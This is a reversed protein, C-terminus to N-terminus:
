PNEGKIKGQAPTKRIPEKCTPSSSKTAEKYPFGQFRERLIQWGTKPDAPAYRTYQAIPGYQSSIRDTDAFQMDDLVNQLCKHADDADLTAWDVRAKALEKICEVAWEIPFLYAPAPGTAATLLRQLYAQPDRPAAFAYRKTKNEDTGVVLVELREALPLDSAAMLHATLWAKATHKPKPESTALKLFIDYCGDKNKHVAEGTGRIRFDGLSLPSRAPTAPREHERAGGWPIREVQNLDFGVKKLNASWAQFIEFHRAKCTQGFIGAPLKGHAKRICYEQEWLACAVASDCGARLFLDTLFWEERAELTEYEVLLIDEEEDDQLGLAISAWGQLPCDLMNKLNSLSISRNAIHGTLKPHQTPSQPVCLLEGLKKRAPESLQPWLEEWGRMGWVQPKSENSEMYGSLEDHLARAAKESQAIPLWRAVCDDAHRALPLKKELRLVMENITQTRTETPANAAIAALIGERLTTLLEHIVSSPSLKEGTEPRRGVYCLVLRDRACLLTELMTYKDHERPTVDGPQRFAPRLDLPDGAGTAPFKGEGLGLVFIVRFPIARMPLFSSVVVGHSRTHAPAYINQLAQRVYGLAIEFSLTAQPGLDQIDNEAVNRIVRLCKEFVARDDQTNAHVYTEILQAIRESWKALPLEEQALAKADHILSQALCLFRGASAWEDQAIEEPLFTGSASPLEVLQCVGSPEGAMFAGLALRQLGQEWSVTDDTELYTGALDSASAGFIINLRDSWQKWLEPQAAEDLGCVLPHTLLRLLENRTFQSEPLKLLLDIATGVRTEALLARDNITCPLGGYSAFIAPIRSFYSASDRPAVIVAIDDPRLTQDRELMDCIEGAVSEIERQINPANFITLSEDPITVSVPLLRPNLPERHRIDSQLQRLLTKTGQGLPEVFRAEFDCDCLENLLRVNERGPRGWLQLLLMDNDTETPRSSEGLGFPDEELLLKSGVKDRRSAFHHRRNQESFTEVDEWFEECPNLAFVYVDTRAAIAKLIEIYTRAFYSLGFIYLPQAALQRWITTPDLGPKAENRDLSRWAEHLCYTKPLQAKQRQIARWLEAQWTEMEAYRRKKPEAGTLYSQGAEWQDLMEPRSRIYELFLSALRHSLQYRRRELDRRDATGDGRLYSAVTPHLKADTHLEALLLLQLQGADLLRVHDDHATITRTLFGELFECEFGYAVGRRAAAEQKLFTAVNPNPVIVTAPEFICHTDGRREISQLLPEVLAETQNSYVVHFRRM